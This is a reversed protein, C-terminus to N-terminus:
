DVRILTAEGQGGGSCICALGIGGGRRRLEYVLTLLIRAGSAGIPHGLAIAGGNVNVKDPDWGTIKLCTLVVVAFAENVEILHVDEDRVGARELARRGALAAVLGLQEPQASASGTAIITALPESGLERAKDESALVVAAAGDNIGPANGATVTGDPSFAPRLQALKELTTDPRPHEDRDFTVPPGKKQAVEVPVIEEALWGREQAHKVRMQSRYAWEDQERRSIGYERAMADGHNGMHRDWFPCWLGDKVTSDVLEGNGLRYGWRARPILYPGSSMNEMGGAVAVQVEGARILADVLNVARLSSACVKDITDAPVQYPIGARHAAQRAPIQGTGAHLVMGMAVYDVLEAPVGARGLAGEIAIGGLQVAPIDKLTGGFRGFATRAAGLIVTRTM